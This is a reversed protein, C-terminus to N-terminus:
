LRCLSNHCLHYCLLKPTMIRSEVRENSGKLNHQVRTFVKDIAANKPIHINKNILM